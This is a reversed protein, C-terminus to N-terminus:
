MNELPTVQVIGPATVQLAAITVVGSAVALIPSEGPNILLDTTAATQAGPGIRITAAATTSVRIFRPKEGTSMNPITASASAASTTITVGTVAVTIFGDKM